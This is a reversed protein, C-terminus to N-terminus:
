CGQLKEEEITLLPRQNSVTEGVKGSKKKLRRDINDIVSQESLIHTVQERKEETERALILSLLLHIELM